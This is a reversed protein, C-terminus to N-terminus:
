TKCSTSNKTGERFLIAEIERKKEEEKGLLAVKVCFYKKKFKTQAKQGCEKNYSLLQSTKGKYVHKRMQFFTMLLHVPIHQPETFSLIVPCLFPLMPVNICRHYM